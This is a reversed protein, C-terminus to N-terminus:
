QEATRGAARPADGHQEWWELWAKASSGPDAGTLQSLSRRIRKSEGSFGGATSIGHVRVDLVSGSQLVNVQPDAISANSAIEVDFDSVFATQKGAFLVAGPSRYPANSAAPASIAALRGILPEVAVPYAMSGLAEAANERVRAYNSELARLVPLVLTPDGAAGLSRAAAARVPESGDLVARGLLQELQEGPFLRGLGRAAFARERVSDSALGARLREYVIAEDELEALRTLALECLSPTPPTTRLLAEASVVSRYVDLARGPSSLLRVADAQGPDEALVRDLQKLAEDVLGERAMWDALAVRRLGLDRGVEAELKRAQTLVQREDSAREVSRPPLAVWEGESYVEWSEGLLRARARVVSGGRLHLIRRRDRALEPDSAVELEADGSQETPAQAQIPGALLLPLLLTFPSAARLTITMNGLIPLDGPAHLTWPFLSSILPALHSGPEAPPFRVPTGHGSAGKWPGNDRAQHAGATRVPPLVAFEM